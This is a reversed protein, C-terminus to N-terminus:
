RGMACGAGGLAKRQATEDAICTGAHSQAAHQLAFAILNILQDITYKVENKLKANIIKIELQSRYEALASPLKSFIMCLIGIDDAKNYAPTCKYKAILNRAAATVKDPSMGTQFPM